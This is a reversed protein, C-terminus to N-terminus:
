WPELLTLVIGSSFANKLLTKLNGISQSKNYEQNQDWNYPPNKEWDFLTNTQQKEEHTKM